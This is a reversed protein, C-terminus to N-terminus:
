YILPILKKTRRQYDKYDPFKELLWEEEKRSFFLLLAIAVIFTYWNQVTAAWGFGLIIVGFYIPHRVMKYIGTQILEGNQKPKPLPTLNPGLSIAAWIAIGLGLYFFARGILWLPYHITEPKGLLDAPGFFLAILLVAQIFVYIAGRDQKTKSM